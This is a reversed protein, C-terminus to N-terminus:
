GRDVGHISRDMERASAWEKSKHGDRKLARCVAREREGGINCLADKDTQIWRTKQRKRAVITRRGDSGVSDIVIM